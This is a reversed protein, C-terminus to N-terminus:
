RAKKVPPGEESAVAEPNLACREVTDINSVALAVDESQFFDTQNSDLSDLM